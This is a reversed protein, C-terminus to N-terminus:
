VKKHTQNVAKRNAVCHVSLGSFSLSKKGAVPMAPEARFLGTRVNIFYDPKM